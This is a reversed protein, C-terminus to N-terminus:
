WVRSTTSVITLSVSKGNFASVTLPPAERLSKKICNWASIRCVGISRACISSVVASPAAKRAPKATPKPIILLLELFKGFQAILKHRQHLTFIGFLKVLAPLSCNFGSLEKAVSFLTNLQTRHSSMGCSRLEVRSYLMPYPDVATRPLISSKPATIQKFPPVNIISLPLIIIPLVGKRNQCPTKLNCHQNFDAIIIAYVFALTLFM